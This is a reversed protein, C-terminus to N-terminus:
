IMGLIEDFVADATKSSTDITVADDAPKLPSASRNTDRDDREKMDALVTEYPTDDNLSQLEAFRRKARTDVDATIFFKHPANPCIVTGCDRGDMVSGKLGMPPHNALHRQLDLVAQRLELNTSTKSAMQGAIDSKLDPNNMADLDFNNALNQAIAIIEDMQTDPTLGKHHADLGILRYIKGTDLYFYNFHSALRRAVTGKGSAAPGDITIIKHTM